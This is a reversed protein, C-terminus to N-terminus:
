KIDIISSYKQRLAKIQATRAQSVGNAKLIENIPGYDGSSIPYVKLVRIITFYNPGALISSIELPKLNSVEEKEEASLLPSPMRDFTGTLATQDNKSYKEIQAEFTTRKNQIDSRIISLKSYVDKKNADSDPNFAVAIRNMKVIPYRKYYNLIEQRSYKKNRFRSDVTKSLYFNYLAGDIADAAEKTQDLGISKSELVALKMNIIYDLVLDDDAVMEKPAGSNYLHTRFRAVDETSIQETGIVALVKSYVPMSIILALVMIM